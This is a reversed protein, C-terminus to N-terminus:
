YDLKWDVGVGSGADQTGAQTDVSIHKSVDVQVNVSSGGSGLGQTVGVYVGNAVYKGASVGTGSLGSGTTGAGTTQGPALATTGLGTAPAAVGPQGGFAPVGLGPAGASNQTSGLSLRDLGFGQRLKDLVSLDGSGALSAAAQALQLGQAPSIQSMSSGFLLRSLIEDQPLAPESSLAIKPAKATGTM